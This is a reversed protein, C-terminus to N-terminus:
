KRLMWFTVDDFGQHKSLFGSELLKLGYRKEYIEGYPGKFLAGENGRYPIEQFIPAYYEMALVYKNSVRIIEQMMREVDQPRQHILVGATMVCQFCEDKFPTDYGSAWVANIEKHRVHLLNLAKQNIDCGWANKASTMTQSIIDLNMGNNCGIELISEIRYKAFLQLFFTRRPQFDRDNRVTYEDGFSESWVESM